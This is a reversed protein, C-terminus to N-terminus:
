TQPILVQSAGAGPLDAQAEALAEDVRANSTVQEENGKKYAYPKDHRAHKLAKAVAEKIRM